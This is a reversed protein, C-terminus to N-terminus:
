TGLLGSSHEFVLAPKVPKAMILEPVEEVAPAAAALADQEEWAEEVGVTMKKELKDFAEQLEIGQERHEDSALLLHALLSQSDATTVVVVVFAILM